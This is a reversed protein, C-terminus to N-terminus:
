DPDCYGFGGFGGSLWWPAVEAAGISGLQPIGSRLHGFPVVFVVFSKKGIGSIPKSSFATGLLWEIM